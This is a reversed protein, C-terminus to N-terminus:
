IRDRGGPWRATDGGRELVRPQYGQASRPTPTITPPAPARSDAHSQLLPSAPEKCSALQLWAIAWPM